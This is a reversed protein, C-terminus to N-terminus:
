KKTRGFRAEELDAHEEAARQLRRLHAADIPTSSWLRAVDDVDPMAVFHLRREGVPQPFGVVEPRQDGAGGVLRAGDMWRAM